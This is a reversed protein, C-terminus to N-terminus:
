QLVGSGRRPAIFGHASLAEALSDSRTKLWREYLKVVGRDGVAGAGKAFFHDAVYSLVEVLASFRSALETFLDPAQPGEAGRKLIAGANEYAARGVGIVYGEDIGKAEFRDGFFGLGYLVGDGLVRLKEFREHLLPTKMADDLLFVLPTEFTARPADPRAFDALLKGMYHTAETSAEVRNAEKARVVADHFFGDVSGTLALPSTM